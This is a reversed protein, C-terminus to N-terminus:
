KLNYNLDKAKEVCEDCYRGRNYGLLRRKCHGCFTKM